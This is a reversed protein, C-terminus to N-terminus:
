GSVPTEFPSCRVGHNKVDRGRVLFFERKFEENTLHNRYVNGGFSGDAALYRVVIVRRWRESRNPPSNHPIMVHHIGMQGASLLYPTRRSELDEPLASPVIEQNFGEVFQSSRVPLAGKKHWEPIVSMAGNEEDIDDLAIWIGPSFRGKVNWYPADQHWPVLQGTQPPKCLMHSSYLLIDPGIQEEVMDLIAPQTVFEFVWPLYQHTNIMTEPSVEPHLEEIMAGVRRRCDALGEDSLFQDFFCYGREEYFAQQDPGYEFQPDVWNEM